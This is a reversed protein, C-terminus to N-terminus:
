FLQIKCIKLLNWISSYKFLTSWRWCWKWIFTSM